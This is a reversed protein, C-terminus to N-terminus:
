LKHVPVYYLKWQLIHLLLV